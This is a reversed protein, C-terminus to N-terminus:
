KAISKKSKSHPLMLYYGSLDKCPVYGKWLLRMLFDDDEAGYHLYLNSFGNINFFYEKPVIVVGGFHHNLTGQRTKKPIETRAIYLGTVLRVATSAYRYDARQPILDVDHLCFYDGQDGFLKAGM